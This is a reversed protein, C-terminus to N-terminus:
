SGNLCFRGSVYASSGPSHGLWIEDHHMFVSVVNPLMLPRVFRVDLSQLYDVRGSLRNKILIEAMRAMSSFGHLFVGSFGSLRAYQKVWHVPNFDGTLKAYNLGDNTKLVIQGIEQAQKHIRPKEKKPGTVQKGTKLPLIAKVESILAEPASDTETILQQHFLCRRGNDDLDVLRASLKLPENAPLQKKVIFKAGGNLIKSVDYPLSHITQALLPLGWQSFFHPPLIGRYNGPDGGVHYIYDRILNSSRPAIVSSYVPGPIDPISGMTPLIKRTIAASAVRALTALMPGQRLVHFMSVEM